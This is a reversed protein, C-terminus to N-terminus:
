VCKRADNGGANMMLRKPSPHDAATSQTIRKGDDAPMLMTQASQAHRCRGSSCSM